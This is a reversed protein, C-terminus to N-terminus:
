LVPLDDKMLRSSTSESRLDGVLEFHGGLRLGGHRLDEAPTVPLEDVGWPELAGVGFVGFSGVLGDDARGEEDDQEVRVQDDARRGVEDRHQEAVPGGAADALQGAGEEDDVPGVLEADIGALVRGAILVQTSALLELQSLGESDEMALGAASVAVDAGLLDQAHGAVGVAQDAVAVVHVSGVVVLVAVPVAHVGETAPEGVRGHSQAAVAHVDPDEFAAGRGEPVRIAM